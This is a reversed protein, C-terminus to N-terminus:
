LNGISYFTAVTDEDIDVRELIAKKIKEIMAADISDVNRRYSLELQFYYIRIFGNNDETVLTINQERSAIDEESQDPVVVYDANERNITIKYDSNRLLARPVKSESCVYLTKGTKPYCLHSCDIRKIIEEPSKTDSDLPLCAVKGKLDSMKESYIKVTIGDYNDLRVLGPNVKNFHVVKYM